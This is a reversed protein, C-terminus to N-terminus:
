HRSILSFESIIQNKKSCCNLMNLTLDFQTLQDYSKSWVGAWRLVLAKPVKDKKIDSQITDLYHTDNGFRVTQDWNMISPFPIFIRRTQFLFCVAQCWSFIRMRMTQTKQDKNTVSVVASPNSITKILLDKFPAGSVRRTHLRETIAQQARAHAYLRCTVSLLALPFISHRLNIDTDNVDM